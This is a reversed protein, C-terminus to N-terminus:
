AAEIAVCIAFRRESPDFGLADRDILRRGTLENGLSTEHLMQRTDPDTFRVRINGPSYLNAEWSLRIQTVGGTSKGGWFCSIHVYEGDGVEFLHSQEPMDAATVAQGAWMPEWLPSIWEMAANKLTSVISEATKKFARGRWGVIRKKGLSKSVADAPSVKLAAEWRARDAAIKLLTMRCDNCQLIHAAATERADRSLDDYAYDVLTEASVCWPKSQSSNYDRKADMLITDFDMHPNMEANM